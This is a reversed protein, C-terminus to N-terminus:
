DVRRGFSIYTEGMHPPGIKPALYTARLAGLLSFAGVSDVSGVEVGVAANIPTELTATAGAAKLAGVVDEAIDSCNANICYVTIAKGKAVHALAATLASSEADTLPPWVLPSIRAVHSANVIPPRSSLAHYGLGSGVMIAAILGYQAIDHRDM